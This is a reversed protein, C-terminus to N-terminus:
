AAIRWRDVAGYTAVGLDAGLLGAITRTLLGGGALLVVARAIQTVILRSAARDGRRAEGAITVTFGERTYAGARDFASLARRWDDIRSLGAETDVIVLRGADAYPLPRLLVGYAVPVVARNLGAGLAAALIAAGAAGRDGRLRRVALRLENLM